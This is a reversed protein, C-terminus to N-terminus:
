PQKSAVCSAGLHTQERQRMGTLGHLWRFHREVESRFQQVIGLSNRAAMRVPPGVWSSLASCRAVPLASPLGLYRLDAFKTHASAIWSAFIAYM